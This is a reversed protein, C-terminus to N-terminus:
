VSWVESQKNQGLVAWKLWFLVERAPMVKISADWNKHGRPCCRMYSHNISEFILPESLLTCVSFVNMQAHLGYFISQFAQVTLQACFPTSCLFHLIGLGKALALGCVKMGFWQLLCIYQSAFCEYM